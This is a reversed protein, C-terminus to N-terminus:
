LTASATVTIYDNASSETVHDVREDDVYIEVTINANKNLTQVSIYLRKGKKSSFEFMWPVNVANVQLLIENHNLYSINVM